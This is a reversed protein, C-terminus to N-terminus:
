RDLARTVAHCLAMSPPPGTADEVTVPVSAGDSTTHLVAPGPGALYHVVGGGLGGATISHLNPDTIIELSYAVGPVVSQPGTSLPPWSGSPGGPHEVVTRVTGAGAPVLLVETAGWSLLPVSPDGAAVPHRFVVRLVHTIGPGQEVPNWTQHMLQQPPVVAYSIGTSVYLGSCGTVAFITGAPAFYPVRDGTRVM